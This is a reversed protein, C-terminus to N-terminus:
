PNKLTDDHEGINRIIIGNDIYIGLCKIFPSNILRYVVDKSFGGNHTGNLINMYM